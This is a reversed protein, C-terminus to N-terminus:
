SAINRKQYFFNIKKDLFFILNSDNNSSIRETEAATVAGGSYMYIQQM